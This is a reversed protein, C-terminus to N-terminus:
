KCIGQSCYHTLYISDLRKHCYLLHINCPKKVTVMNVTTDRYSEQKEKDTAVSGYVTENDRYDVFFVTFFHWFM